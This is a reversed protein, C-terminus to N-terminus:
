IAPVEHSVSGLFYLLLITNIVKYTYIQDFKVRIFVIKNDYKLLIFIIIYLKTIKTLNYNELLKHLKFMDVEM